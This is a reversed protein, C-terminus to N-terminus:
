SKRSASKKAPRKPPPTPEAVSASRAKSAKDLDAETAVPALSKAYLYYVLFQVIVLGMMVQNRQSVPGSRASNALVIGFVLAEVFHVFATAEAALSSAASRIFGLRTLALVAIFVLFWNQQQPTPAQIISVGEAFPKGVYLLQYATHIEVAIGIAAVAQAVPMPIMAPFSLSPPQHQIFVTEVRLCHLAVVDGREVINSACARKRLVCNEIETARSSLM